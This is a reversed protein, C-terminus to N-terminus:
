ANPEESGGGATEAQRRERIWSSLQYGGGALGLGFLILLLILFRFVLLWWLGAALGLVGVGWIVPQNARVRALLKVPPSM